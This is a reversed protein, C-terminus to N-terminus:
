NNIQIHSINWVNFRQANQHQLLEVSRPFREEGGHRDVGDYHGIEAAAPSEIQQEDALGGVKLFHKAEFDALYNLQLNM